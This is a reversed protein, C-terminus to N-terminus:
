TKGLGQMKLVRAQHRGGEFSTSFFTDIIRFALETEILRAGLCLVNANNHSRALRAVEETWCLAARIEAYKNASMAMGQGSGCILIGFTKGSSELVAQCVQEAFDPYDVSQTNHPGLDKLTVSASAAKWRQAIMAKFEFGAHDSAVVIQDLGKFFHSM